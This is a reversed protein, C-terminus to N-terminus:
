NVSVPVILAVGILMAVDGAANCLPALVIWLRCKNHQANYFYTSAGFPRRCAVVDRFLEGLWGYVGGHGYEALNRQLKEEIKSGVIKGENAAEVEWGISEYLFDGDPLLRILTLYPKIPEPVDGWNLASLVPLDREDGGAHWYELFHRELAVWDRPQVEISFNVPDGAVDGLSIRNPDDPAIDIGSLQRGLEAFLDEAIGRDILLRRFACVAGHMPVTSGDTLGVFRRYCIRDSMDFDFEVASLSFWQELLLAKFLTLPQYARDSHPASELWRFFKDFCGWDIARDILDLRERRRSAAPTASYILPEWAQIVM